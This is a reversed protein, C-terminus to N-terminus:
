NLLKIYTDTFCSNTGKKLAAQSTSRYAPKLSNPVFHDFMQSKGMVFLKKDFIAYRSFEDTM